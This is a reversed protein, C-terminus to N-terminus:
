QNIEIFQITWLIRYIGIELTGNEIQKTGLIWTKALKCFKVLKPLINKVFYAM